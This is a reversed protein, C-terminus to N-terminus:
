CLEELKPECILLLTHVVEHEQVELNGGEGVWM